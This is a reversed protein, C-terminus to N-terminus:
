LIGLFIMIVGSFLILIVKISNSQGKLLSSTGLGLSHYVGQGGLLEWWGLDLTKFKNSVSLSLGGFSQGSMLPLFWMQIFGEAWYNKMLIKMGLTLNLSLILGLIAGLLCSFLPLLKESLSLVVVPPSPFIMWSLIAGSTLSMFMLGLKAKFMIDDEEKSASLPVQNSFNLFSLFTLRISYAASLGVSLGALIITMLSYGGMLGEEILLDKSYFGAMFPFGCLALNSLNMCMGTYPLSLGLSGMHRIDQTEGSEHIIKGSCMFLLAKFMAHTLLHFFALKAVGLVITFVMIGLQSSTSLAVVKKLDSEFSASISAMLNTLVGVLFLVKYVEHGMLLPNFRILLYVGATVLTSSHVLASMPTPAAMAAPLWASFPMQASKTMAALVVLILLLFQDMSSENEQMFMFNWSGSEVMVGIALLIAADGIRNSLATIMGAANSKKNQYYIVLVYSVLGLGDWGVLISVLNLSFVLFFMSAVSLLVLAIFRTINLDEGMYSGSYFVVSASIFTVFSFFLASMWDFYLTFFFNNSGVSVFWFELVKSEESLLFILGLIFLGGSSLLLILSWVSTLSSRSLM